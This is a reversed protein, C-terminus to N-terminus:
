DTKRILLFSLTAVSLLVCADGAPHAERDFAKGDFAEVPTSGELDLQLSSESLAVPSMGLNAVQTLSPEASVFTTVCILLTVAFFCRYILNM